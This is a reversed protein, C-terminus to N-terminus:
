YRFPDLYKIGFRYSKNFSIVFRWNMRILGDQGVIGEPPNIFPSAQMFADGPALDFSSIGSSKLIRMTEFNGNSDLVIEVDSIYEIANLASKLDAYSDLYTKIYSNWLPVIALEVRRYFSYYIFEATNLITESGSKVDPLYDYTSSVNNNELDKKALEKLFGLSESNFLDRSISSAVNKPEGWLSAKKEELVLKNSQSLYKAQKNYEEDSIDDIIVLQKFFMDVVDEYTLKKDIIKKEKFLMFFFLHILISFFIFFIWTTTKRNM